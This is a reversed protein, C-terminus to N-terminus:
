RLPDLHGSRSKYAAFYWFSRPPNWYDDYEGGYTFWRRSEEDLRDQAPAFHIESPYDGHGRLCWITVWYEGASLGGTNWHYYEGYSELRMAYSYGDHPDVYEVEAPGFCRVADKLFYVHAGTVDVASPEQVCGVIPLAFLLLYARM